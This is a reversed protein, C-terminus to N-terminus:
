KRTSEDKYLQPIFTRMARDRGEQAVLEHMAKEAMNLGFVVCGEFQSATVMENTEYDLCLSWRGDVFQAVWRLCDGIREAFNSPKANCKFCSTSIVTQKSAQNM